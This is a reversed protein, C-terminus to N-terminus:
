AFNVSASIVAADIDADSGLATTAFAEGTSPDEIPLTAGDLAEAPGNNLWLPVHMGDVTSSFTRALSTLRPRTLLRRRALLM